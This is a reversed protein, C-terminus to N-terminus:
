LGLWHEIEIGWVDPTCSEVGAVTAPASFLCARQSNETDPVEVHAKLLVRGGKKKVGRILAAVMAQSGGKPFELCAGPKYWEQFMFAVEAAITGDAPLGSLLFSLLNMYNYM